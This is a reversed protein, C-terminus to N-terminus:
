PFRYGADVMKRRVVMPANPDSPTSSLIVPRMGPASLRFHGGQPFVRPRPQAKEVLERFEKPVTMKATGPVPDSASREPEPQRPRALVPAGVPKIYRYTTQPKAYPVDERIWQDRPLEVIVGKEIFPVLRQRVADMSTPAYGFHDRMAARTFPEGKTDVIWDRVQEDTPQVFEGARPEPRPAEIVSEAPPAEITRDIAEVAEVATGSGDGHDEDQRESPEVVPEVVEPEPPAEGGLVTIAVDLRRREERLVDLSKIIEDIEEIREHMARVIDNTEMVGM